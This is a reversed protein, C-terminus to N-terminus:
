REEHCLTRRMGSNAESSMAFVWKPVEGGPCGKGGHKGSCVSVPLGGHLGVNADGSIREGGPDECVSCEVM